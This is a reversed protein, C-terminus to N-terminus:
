PLYVIEICSTAEPRALETAAANSTYVACLSSVGEALSITHTVTGDLGAALDTLAADDLRVGYTRGPHGTLTVDLSPTAVITPTAVDWAPGRV